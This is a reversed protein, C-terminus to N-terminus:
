RSDSFPKYHRAEKSEGRRSKKKVNNREEDNELRANIKEMKDKDKNISTEIPDKSM